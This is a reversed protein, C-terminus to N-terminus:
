TKEPKEPKGSDAERRAIEAVAAERIAANKHQAMGALKADDSKAVLSQLRESVPKAPSQKPPAAPQSAATKSKGYEGLSMPAPQQELAM